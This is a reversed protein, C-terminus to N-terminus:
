RDFFIDLARTVGSEKGFLVKYGKVGPDHDVVTQLYKEFGKKARELQEGALPTTKQTLDLFVNLYERFIGTADDDQAETIRAQLSARSFVSQIEGQVSGTKQLLAPYRDRIQIMRDFLANDDRQGEDGARHIDFMVMRKKGTIVVEGTFVPLDLEIRPRLFTSRVSMYFPLDIRMLVVRSFQESSYVEGDVRVLGLTRKSREPFPYKLRVPNLSFRKQIETLAVAQIDRLSGM